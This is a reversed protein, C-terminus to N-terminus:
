LNSMDVRNKLKDKADKRLRKATDPNKSLLQQRSEISEAVSELTGIRARMDNINGNAMELSQTKSSLQLQADALHLEAQRAGEELVEM